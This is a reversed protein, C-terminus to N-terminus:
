TNVHDAPCSVESTNPFRQRARRYHGDQARTLRALGCQRTRKGAPPCSREEIELVRDIQGSQVDRHDRQLRESVQDDDVLNLSYRLQELDQPYPGVTRSRRGLKEDQAACIRTKHAPDRLAQGTTDTVDIDVPEVQRLDARVLMLAKPDPPAKRAGKQGPGV